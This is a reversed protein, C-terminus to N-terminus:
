LRVKVFNSYDFWAGCALASHVSVILHLCLLSCILVTCQKIFKCGTDLKSGMGIFTYSFFSALVSIM